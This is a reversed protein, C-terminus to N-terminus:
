SWRPPWRSRRLMAGAEPPERREGWGQYRLAIGERRIRCASWGIHFNSGFTVPPGFGEVVDSAMLHVAETLPLQAHMIKPKAADPANPM